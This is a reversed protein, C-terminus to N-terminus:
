RPMEELNTEALRQLVSLRKAVTKQCFKEVVCEYRKDTHKLEASFCERWHSLYGVQKKIIRWWAKALGKTRFGIWAKFYRGDESIQYAVNPSLKIVPKLPTIGLCKLEILSYDQVEGQEWEILFPRTLEVNLEVITGWIELGERQRFVRESLKFNYLGQEKALSAIQEAWVASWVENLEETDYNEGALELVLEEFLQQKKMATLCSLNDNVAKAMKLHLKVKNKLAILSLNSPVQASIPIDVICAFLKGPFLEKTLRYREELSRIILHHESVEEVLFTNAQNFKVFKANGLQITINAPLEVITKRPILQPIIAIGLFRIEDLTYAFVDPESDSNGDWTITIPRDTENLVTVVGYCQGQTVIDGLQFQHLKPLKPQTLSAGFVAIIDKPELALNKSEILKLLQNSNGMATDLHFLQSM